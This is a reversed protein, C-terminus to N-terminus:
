QRSPPWAKCSRFSLQFKLDEHDSDASVSVPSAEMLRSMGRGRPAFRFEPCRTLIPEPLGLQGTLQGEMGAVVSLGFLGDEGTSTTESYGNQPSTFTIAASAVPAGDMFQFRGAIKYRKEESPVRIDLHKLYKSAEISVVTARKRDRVGPYYLTSKSELGDLKVEDRAVLWYKGPPMMEMKFTGGAKSCDFFRAGNEGRGELPELDICVDTMPAGKADLMHGSLRTDAKLVFGVSASGNQDLEVADDDGKVPASGTVIPFDIRLGRPVEISVSYRGSRLGYLEYVGAVNTVTERTFGQPGSIKVRVNPVGGVRKFSETPSDEYLEVEGSLRTGVASKPLGRLFLLDDGAPEASGLAQTCWPVRWSGQTTGPYLYFVYRQGIRFKADCDNAGQHLEITQGRSVGKFAEDVRIRVSQEQFMVQRADEDPDAMEVAGLFVAPAERWAQKVSPWGGSCSCARSHVAFILLLAFRWPM